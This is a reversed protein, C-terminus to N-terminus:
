FLSFHDTFVFGDLALVTRLKIKINSPQASMRFCLKIAKTLNMKCRNYYWWDVDVPSINFSSNGKALLVVSWLFRYLFYIKGFLRSSEIRLPFPLTFKAITRLMQVFHFYFNKRYNKMTKIKLFGGASYFAKNMLKQCDTHNRVYDLNHNYCLFCLVWGVKLLSPKTALYSLPYFSVQKGPRSSQRM